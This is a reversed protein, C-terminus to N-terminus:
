ETLVHLLYYKGFKLSAVYVSPRQAVPQLQPLFLLWFIVSQCFDRIATNGAITWFSYFQHTPVKCIVRISYQKIWLISMNLARGPTVLIQRIGGFVFHPSPGCNKEFSRGDGWRVAKM